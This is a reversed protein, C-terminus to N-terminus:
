GETHGTAEFILRQEAIDWACVSHDMSASALRRGAPDFALGRTGRRFTAVLSRQETDWLCVAGEAGGTALWDVGGAALLHGHPQFALAEVSCGAAAVPIVLTPEGTMLKWLWVTGDSASASALTEGDAAFALAS